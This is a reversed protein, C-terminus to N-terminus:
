LFAGRRGVDSRTPCGLPRLTSSTRSGRRLSLRWAFRRELDRGRRACGRMTARRAYSGERPKDSKRPEIELLFRELDRLDIGDGTKEVFAAKQRPRRKSRGVVRDRGGGHHPATDPIQRPLYAERM